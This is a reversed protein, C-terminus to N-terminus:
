LTNAPHIKRKAAIYAAHAEEPTAFTGLYTREGKYNIVAKWGRGNRSAGLMGILNDVRHRKINQSNISRDAARLNRWRNDSRKGNIHDLLAPPQEGTMYVWALRHLLHKKGDIQVQTYGDCHHSGVIAGPTGRQGKQVRWRFLGTEPNYRFLKHCEDATLM